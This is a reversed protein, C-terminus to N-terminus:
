ERGSDSQCATAPFRNALPRQILSEAERRVIHAIWSEHNDAKAPSWDYSQVAAMLHSGIEADREPDGFHRDPNGGAAKALGCYLCNSDWVSEPTARCTFLLFNERQDPGGHGAAQRANAGFTTSGFGGGFILVCRRHARPYSHTM